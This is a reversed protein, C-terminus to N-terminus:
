RFIFHAVHGLQGIEREAIGFHSTGRRDPRSRQGVDVLEVLEIGPTSGM